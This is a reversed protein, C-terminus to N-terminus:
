RIVRWEVIRFMQTPDDGGDQEAFDDTARWVYAEVRAQANGSMSDSQIRFMSSKIDFFQAKPLTAPQPNPQPDPQAGPDAPPDPNPNVPAPNLDGVEAQTLYPGQDELREAILSVTEGAREFDWNTTPEAQAAMLAILVEQPATNINVMGQPHGHVTLLECLAVGEAAEGTGFYVDATIGPILLLEEISDMPGNKAEYPHDLSQYFSSEYGTPRILDDADLWDLIAPVPDETMGRESFLARLASELRLFVKEEGAEEFILANLNIKGFEDSITIQGLAEESEEAEPPKAWPDELSDFIEGSSAEEEEDITKNNLLDAELLSLAEAVSSKAALLAEFDSDSFAVATSDVQAEYTFSTVIVTLIVVFVLALM